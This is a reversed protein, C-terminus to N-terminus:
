AEDLGIPFDFEDEEWYGAFYNALAEIGDMYANIYADRDPSAFTTNKFVDMEGKRQKVIQEIVNDCHERNIIM